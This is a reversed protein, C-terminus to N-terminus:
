KEGREKYLRKHQFLSDIFIIIYTVMLGIVVSVLDFHEPYRTAITVALVALALRTLFGLSHAKKKEGEGKASKEVAQGLRNIKSYMSWLNFYSFITGLLLGLFITSYSTFGWGLVFFAALFLTYKTYRRMNASYQDM